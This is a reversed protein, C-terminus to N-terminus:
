DLKVPVNVVRLRWDKFSEGTKLIGITDFSYKNGLGYLSDPAVNFTWVSGLPVSRQPTSEVLGKLSTRDAGARDQRDTAQWHRFAGKSAILRNMM